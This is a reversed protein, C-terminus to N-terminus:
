LVVKKWDQPYDGAHLLAEFTRSALMFGLEAIEDLDVTNKKKRGKNRRGGHAIGSRAEYFKLVQDFVVLRDDRTEGLFHAARSALKYTLEPPQLEYMMELAIAADLIRDHLWFRGRNRYISSSLRTVALELQDRNDCRFRSWLDLLEQLRRVREGTLPEQNPNPIPPFGFSPGPAVARLLDAFEPACHLTSLVQVQLSTCVSLLDFVIASRSGPSWRFVPVVAPVADKSTLPAVLCPGWTMERALVLSQTEAHEPWMAAPTPKEHMVLGREVARRYEMIELGPALEVEGSMTLGQFITVEYGPVQGQSNLSLLRELQRVTAKSGIQLASKTIYRVLINLELRSGGSPTMVFVARKDETDGVFSELGPHNCVIEILHQPDDKLKPLLNDFYARAREDTRALKALARYDESPVPPGGYGHGGVTKVLPALARNVRGMWVDANWGSAM